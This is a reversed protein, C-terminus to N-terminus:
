DPIRSDQSASGHPRPIGPHRGRSLAGFRRYPVAAVRRRAQLSQRHIERGDVGSPAFLWAGAGRGRDIIGGASGGAGAAPAFGGCLIPHQCHSAWNFNAEGEGGRLRGVLHHNETPGYMNWLSACKPLLQEALQPAWAEGGCLINLHPNGEWGAELLLRWTSPTAQMVTAGSRQMLAALERGDRAVEPPVIVVKAGTTLPLWIELGFIDFSLTTVSLLTDRAGMGPVARMSHLFNVVARHCIEVGKPKGTSGSTYIVYALHRSNPPPAAPAERVAAFNDVCVVQSQNPPLKALLKTLTVLVRPQADGLMFAVREQPLALDIPLYAGRAKLIGLLAAVMELSREVYVAVLVDPGVGLAQLHRAFETSRRDLEGYTLQEGNFEAAVAGPTRDAQVEFLEHICANAPYDVQSENWDVLLRQREAETLLPLMSVRENPNSVIGELMALYNGAMREIRTADFLDAAYEIWGAVGDARDLLCLTLDFKATGNDIRFPSVTLQSLEWKPKINQLIFLVQFLPAYSETRQPHLADVLEELPLDQNEFGGLTAQRVRQLLDVFTPDGSIDSRLALTNVFFGILGESEPLTRNAIPTGVIIDNRGTYRSILTQFAALLSMYLTVGQHQSLDRLAATLSKPLTLQHRAGRFTQVPPRPRDTPLELLPAAGSLHRIWYSLQQQAAESNLWESQWAAYDAYQILPDSLPSPEGARFAEYLLRFEKLFVGFSWGDTAIHHATILLICEDQALVLLAFRWLPGTALDFPQRAEEVALRVAESQRDVEPIGRLDTVPLRIPENPLILQIPQGDRVVFSARMAEHRRLIEQLTRELIAIDLAGKLRLNFSENYHVGHELQDLFWMRRQGASLPYEHPDERRAIGRGKETQIVEEDLLSALLALKQESFGARGSSGRSM